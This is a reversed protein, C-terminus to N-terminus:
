IPRTGEGWCTDGREESYMLPTHAVSDDSVLLHISTTMFRTDFEFPQIAISLVFLPRSTGASPPSSISAAGGLVKVSLAGSARCLLQAIISRSGQQFQLVHGRIYTNRSSEGWTARRSNHKVTFQSSDQKGGPTRAGGSGSCLHFNMLQSKKGKPQINSNAVRGRKRSPICPSACQRENM